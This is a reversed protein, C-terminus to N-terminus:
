KLLFALNSPVFAIRPPTGTQKGWNPGQSNPAWCPNARIEFSQFTTEAGSTSSILPSALTIVISYLSFSQNFFIHQSHLTRFGIDQINIPSMSGQLCQLFLFSTPYPRESTIYLWMIRLCIVFPYRLQFCLRFDLRYKEEWMQM